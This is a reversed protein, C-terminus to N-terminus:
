SAALPLHTPAQGLLVFDYVFIDAYEPPKGTTSLSQDRTTPVGIAADLPSTLLQTPCMPVEGNKAM